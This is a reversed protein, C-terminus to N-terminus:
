EGPGSRPAPQPGTARHQGTRPPTYAPLQQTPRPMFQRKFTPETAPEPAAPPPKPAGRRRNRRNQEEATRLSMWHEFLWIVVLAMAIVGIRLWPTTGDTGAFVAHLMVLGLAGLAVPHLARWAKYGIYKRILSSGWVVVLLYAGIIGAAIWIPQYSAHFPVLIDALSFPVIRDLFVLILHIGLFIGTLLSVTLHVDYVRWRTLFKAWLRIRLMLGILVTLFLLVLAALGSARLFYWITPGLLPDHSTILDIAEQPISVAGTASGTLDQEASTNVTLYLTAKGGTAKGTGTGQMDLHFSGDGLVLGSVNARFITMAGGTDTITADGRLVGETPVKAGGPFVDTQLQTKTGPYFAEYMTLHALLPLSKDKPTITLTITLYHVSYGQGDVGLYLDDFSGKLDAQYPPPKPTAQPTTGAASAFAPQLVAMGVLGVLALLAALLVAPRPRIQKGL